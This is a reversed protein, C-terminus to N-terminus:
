YDNLMCSDVKGDGRVQAAAHRRQAAVLFQLLDPDLPPHRTPSPESGSQQYTSLSRTFSYTIFRFAFLILSFLILIPFAFRPLLILSTM